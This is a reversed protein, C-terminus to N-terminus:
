TPRHGNQDGFSSQSSAVSPSRTARWAPPVLCPSTWPGAWASSALADGQQMQLGTTKRTVEASQYPSCGRDPSRTASCLGMASLSRRTASPSSVENPCHPHCAWSWSAPANASFYLTAARSVVPKPPGSSRTGRCKARGHVALAPSPPCRECLDSNSLQEHVSHTRTRRSIRHLSRRDPPPSHSPRGPTRVTHSACSSTASMRCPPLVGTSAVTTHRAPTRRPTSDRYICYRSPSVIVLMKRLSFFDDSFLLM